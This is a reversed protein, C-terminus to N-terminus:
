HCAFKRVSKWRPIMGLMKEFEFEEFRVTYYDVKTGSARETIQGQLEMVTKRLSQDGSPGALFYTEGDFRVARGNSVRWLRSRHDRDLYRANADNDQIIFTSTQGSSTVTMELRSTQVQRYRLNCGQPYSVTGSLHHVLRSLMVESRDSSTETADSAPKCGSAFLTALFFPMATTVLSIRTLM